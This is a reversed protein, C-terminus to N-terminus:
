IQQMMVTIKKLKLTDCSLVTRYLSEGLLKEYHDFLVFIIYNNLVEKFSNIKFVFIVHAKWARGGGGCGCEFGFKSWQQSWPKYKIHIVVHQIM